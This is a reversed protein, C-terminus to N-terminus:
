FKRGCKRCRVLYTNDKTKTLQIQNIVRLGNEDVLVDVHDCDNVRKMDRIIGKELKKNEASIRKNREMLNINIGQAYELQQHLEHNSEHARKLERELLEMKESIELRPKSYSFVISELESMIYDNRTIDTVFIAGNKDILNQEKLGTVLAIKLEEKIKSGHKSEITM